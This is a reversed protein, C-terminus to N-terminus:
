AAPIITNMTGNLMDGFFIHASAKELDSFLHYHEYSGAKCWEANTESEGAIVCKVNGRGYRTITNGSNLVVAKCLEEASTKDITYINAFKIEQSQLEWINGFGNAAHLTSNLYSTAETIDMGAKWSPIMLSDGAKTNSSNILLMAPYYVSNEDGNRKSKAFNEFETTSVSVAVGSLTIRIPMVFGNVQRFAYSDIADAIDDANAVLDSIGSSIADHNKGYIVTALITKRENCFWATTQVACAFDRM